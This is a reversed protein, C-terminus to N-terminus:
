SLLFAEKRSKRGKKLCHHSYKWGLGHVIFKWLFERLVAHNIGGLHLATSCHDRAFPVLSSHGRQWALGGSVRSWPVTSVDGPCPPGYAVEAGGGNRDM